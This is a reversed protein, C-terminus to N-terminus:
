RPSRCRRTIQVSAPQVSSGGAPQIHRRRPVPETETLRQAQSPGINVELVSSIRELSAVVEAASATRHSGRRASTSVFVAAERRVRAARPKHKLCKPLMLRARGLGALTIFRTNVVGRPVGIPGRFALRCNPSNRRLVLQRMDPDVVEPVSGGAEQERL